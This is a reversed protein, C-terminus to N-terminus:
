GESQSRFVFFPRLRVLVVVVAVTFFFLGDRSQRCSVFDDTTPGDDLDGSAAITHSRQDWMGPM